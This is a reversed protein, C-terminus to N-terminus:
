GNNEKPKSQSYNLKKGQNYLEKVEKLTFPKACKHNNMLEKPNEGNLVDRYWGCKGCEVAYIKGYEEM